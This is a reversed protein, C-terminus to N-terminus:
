VEILGLRIAETVAHARDNANLKQMLHSVHTKVTEDSVGLTAAIQAGSRGKM